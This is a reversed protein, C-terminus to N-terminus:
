EFKVSQVFAEFNAKERQALEVDGTLKFFWASEGRPIIVGITCSPKKSKADTGVLDVLTGDSGSVSLIKASKQMEEKSWSELGLQGRWRNLNQLLDGGARSVTTKVSMKGETVAFAALSFENGAVEKWGEPVTWKPQGRTAVPTPPASKEAALFNVLTIQKGAVELQQVEAGKPQEEATLDSEKKEPLGLQECWLNVIMLPVGDTPRGPPFPLRTVSVSMEEGDAKVTLTAFRTTGPEVDKRETWGEPLTWEPTATEDDSFKLSQVLSLFEEMQEAAADKSGMLKFIWFTRGQPAIAALMRENLAQGHGPPMAGRPPMEAVAERKSHPLKKVTYRKIEDRNQCGALLLCLMAGIVVSQVVRAMRFVSASRVRFRM